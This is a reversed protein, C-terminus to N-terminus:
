VFNYSDFYIWCFFRICLVDLINVARLTNTMLRTKAPVISANSAGFAATFTDYLKTYHISYSTIVSRIIILWCLLVFVLLVMVIFGIYWPQLFSDNKADKEPLAFIEEDLAYYSRIAYM